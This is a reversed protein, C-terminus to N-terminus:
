RDTKAFSSSYPTPLEVRVLFSRTDGAEQVIAEGQRSPIGSWVSRERSRTGLNVRVLQKRLVTVLETGDNCEGTRWCVRHSGQPAHTQESDSIRM